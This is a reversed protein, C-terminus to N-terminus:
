AQAVHFYAKMVVRSLQNIPPGSAEGKLQPNLSKAMVANRPATWPLDKKFVGGGTITVAGPRGWPKGDAQRLYFSVQKSLDPSLQPNAKLVAEVAMKLKDGIITQLRGSEMYTRCDGEHFILPFTVRVHKPSAIVAVPAMSLFPLALASALLERRKM